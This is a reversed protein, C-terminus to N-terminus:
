KPAMEKKRAYNVALTKGRYGTGNLGDIITQAWTEAVEVFSYSDLIRIDGIDDKDMEPFKSLIIGCIDRPFVKRNKGLGFFLMKMDTRPQQQQQRNRFEGRFQRLNEQKQKEFAQKLLYAAVSTRSFLSVNKTFLKRYMLLVGAKESYVERNIKHIFSQVEGTSVQTNEQNSKLIIIDKEGIIKPRL